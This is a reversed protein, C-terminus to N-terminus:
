AQDWKRPRGPPRLSGELGLMVATREVWIPSGFPSGRNVSMRIQELQIGAADENIWTVWPSPRAVPGIDIAPQDGSGVWHRASSWRWDEARPVLKARIPNQEIYRLVALLHEDQEIPFAKFRGQWVHGSSEYWRHYRRVHATLLWQMWRSLDGDGYPWPLRRCADGVLAVFAQFDGDAHFVPARGNGRNMVHYCYQGVSARATRPM